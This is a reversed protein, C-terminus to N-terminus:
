SLAGLKLSILMETELAALVDVLEFRNFKRARCVAYSVNRFLCICIERCLDYALSIEASM